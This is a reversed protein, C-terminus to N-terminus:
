TNVQVPEPPVAVWDTVTETLAFGGVTLMEAAGLVIALPVLEVSVQTEELAVDQEADPAQDPVLVRDPDCDVPM